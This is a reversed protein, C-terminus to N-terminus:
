KPCEWGSAKSIEWKKFSHVYTYRPNVLLFCQTKCRWTKKKIRASSLHSIVRFLIRQLFMKRFSCLIAFGALACPGVSSCAMTDGFQHPHTLLFATKLLNWYIIQTYNENQMQPKLLYIFYILNQEFYCPLNLVHREKFSFWTLTLYM